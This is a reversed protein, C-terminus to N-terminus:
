VEKLFAVKVTPQQEYHRSDDPECQQKTIHEEFGTTIRAIEPGAVMLRRLAGPSWTLGIAGGSVKVLANNQVHCQDIAKASFKNTTKRVLFHGTMFEALIDSHRHKLAMMDRIHVSLWRSNYAHDLAFM